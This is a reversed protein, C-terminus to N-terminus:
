QGKIKVVKKLKLFDETKDARQVKQREYSEECCICIIRKYLMLHNIPNINSVIGGEM